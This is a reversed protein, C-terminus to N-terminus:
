TYVTRTHNSLRRHRRRIFYFIRLLLRPRKKGRIRLWRRPRDIRKGGRRRTRMKKDRESVDGKGGCIANCGCGEARDEVVEEESECGLEVSKIEVRELDELCTCDYEGTYTVQAICEKFVTEAM